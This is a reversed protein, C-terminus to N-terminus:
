TPATVLEEQTIDECFDNTNLPDDNYDDSFISVNDEMTDGPLDQDYNVVDECINNLTQGTSTKPDNSQITKFNIKSPDLTDIPNSNETNPKKIERHSFNVYLILTLLQM